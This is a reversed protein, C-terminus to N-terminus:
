PCWQYRTRYTEIKADIGQCVSSSLANWSLRKQAAAESLYEFLPSLARHIQYKVFDDKDRNGNAYGRPCMEEGFARERSWGDRVQRLTGALLGTRDEGVTCHFIVGENEHAKIYNLAEVVQECPERYTKIDRWPFSIWHMDVDAYGYETYLKRLKERSEPSSFEKFVLVKHIGHGQLEAIHAPTLPRNARLIKSEAIWHANPVTIGAASPPVRSVHDDDAVKATAPGTAVSLAIAVFFGGWRKM